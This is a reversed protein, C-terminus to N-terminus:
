NIKFNYSVGLGIFYSNKVFLYDAYGTPSTKDKKQYGKSNFDIDLDYCLDTVLFFDFENKKSTRYTTGLTLRVRNVYVDSYEPNPNSWRGSATSYVFKSPRVGNLLTRLQVAFYPKLGKGPVDYELKVRTKLCMETKPSQFRNVSDTKHTVQFREQFSLEWRDFEVRETLYFSGRHRIGWGDSTSNNMIFSYEVGTKLWPLIRYGIGLSTYSKHFHSFNENVRIEENISLDLKKPVLDIEMGAELRIGTECTPKVRTYDLERTQAGALVPLLMLIMM